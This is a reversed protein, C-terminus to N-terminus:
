AGFGRCSSLTKEYNKTEKPVGFGSFRLWGLFPAAKELFFANKEYLFDVRCFASAKDNEGSKHLCWNGPTEWCGTTQDAVGLIAMINRQGVHYRYLVYLGTCPATRMSIHIKVQNANAIM